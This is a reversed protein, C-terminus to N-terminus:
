WTVKHFLIKIFTQQKIKLRKWVSLKAFFIQMEIPRKKWCPKNNFVPQRVAILMLLLVLQWGCKQGFRIWQQVMALKLIYQYVVTGTPNAYLVTPFLMCDFSNLKEQVTSARGSYIGVLSMAWFPAVAHLIFDRSSVVEWSWIAVTVAFGVILSLCKYVSVRSM